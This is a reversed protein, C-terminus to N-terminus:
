ALPMMGVGNCAMQGMVRLIRRRTIGTQRTKMEMERTDQALRGNIDGDRFEVAGADEQEKTADFVVKEVSVCGAMWWSARRIKLMSWHGDNGIKQKSGRYVQLELAAKIGPDFGDFNAARAKRVTGDQRDRIPVFPLTARIARTATGPCLSRERLADRLKLIRWYRDRVHKGFNEYTEHDQTIMKKFFEAIDDPGLARCRDLVVAQYVLQWTDDNNTGWLANEVALILLGTSEFEHLIEPHSSIYDQSAQYNGRRINAFEMAAASPSDQGHHMPFLAEIGNRTDPAATTENPDRNPNLLEPKVTEGPKAESAHPSDLPIFYSEKTTKRCHENKLSNMDDVLPIRWAQILRNYHFLDEHPEYKDMNKKDPNKEMLELCGLITRSTISLDLAGEPWPLRGDEGPKCPALNAVAQFATQARNNIQLKPSVLDDWHEMLIDNIAREDKVADIQKMRRRDVNIQTCNSVEPEDRKKDDDM